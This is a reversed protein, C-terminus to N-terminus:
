DELHPCRPPETSIDWWEQDAVEKERDDCGRAPLGGVWETGDLRRRAMGDWRAHRRHQPRVRVRVRVLMSFTTLDGLM